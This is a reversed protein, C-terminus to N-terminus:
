MAYQRSERCCGGFLAGFPLNPMVCWALLRYREGAHYLLAEQVIKAITPNQLVCSGLGSDLWQEIRIRRQEAQQNEPITKLAQELQRLKEQPLADALRFTVSQVLDPADCHPLYGGAYWGRPAIADESGANTVQPRRM